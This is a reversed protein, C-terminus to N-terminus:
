YCLLQQSLRRRLEASQILNLTQNAQPIQHLYAYRQAIAELQSARDSPDNYDYTAAGMVLTQRVEPDPITRAAAVSQALTAIARQGQDLAIYHDALALFLQTKLEPSRTTPILREALAVDLHGLITQMVTVPAPTQLEYTPVTQALQYAWQYLGADLLPQTSGVLFAPPTGPTENTAQARQLVAAFRQAALDAEGLQAYTAVLSVLAAGKQIPDTLDNSQETVSLLRALAADIQGAQYEFQAIARQTQMWDVPAQAAFQAQGIQEARAGDGQQLALAIARHVWTTRDSAPPPLQDIGQLAVELQGQGLATYIIQGLTAERLNGADESLPIQSALQLAWDYYQAELALAILSNTVTRHQEVEFPKIISLVEALLTNAQPSRDRARYATAIAM